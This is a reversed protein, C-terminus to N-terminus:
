CDHVRRSTSCSKLPAGITTSHTTYPSWTTRTSLEFCQSKSGVRVVQDGYVVCEELTPPKTPATTPSPTAPKAAVPAPTAPKARYKAVLDDMRTSRPSGAACRQEYSSILGEVEEPKMKSGTTRKPTTQTSPPTPGTSPPKEDIASLKADWRRAILEEIQPHRLAGGAVSANYAAILKDIEEDNM